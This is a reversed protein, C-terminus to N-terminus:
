PAFLQRVRSSASDAGVVLDTSLTQTSGHQVYEVALSGNSPDEYVDRMFAAEIFTSQTGSALRDFARRLTRHLCGWSTSPTNIDKAELVEGEKGFVVLRRHRVLYTLENEADSGGLSALFDEVDKSLRLGGGQDQLEEPTRRELVHVCRGLRM